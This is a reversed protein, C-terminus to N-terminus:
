FQLTPLIKKLQIGREWLKPNKKAIVRDWLHTYEHIPHEPSIKTEDLYINGESDVFGYIEGQPTQFKALESTRQNSRSGGFNQGRVPEGSSAEQALGDNNRNTKRNSLLNDSNFLSGQESEYQTLVSSFVRDKEKYGNEVINIQEANLKDLNYWDVVEFGFTTLKKNGKYFKLSTNFRFIRKKDKSFYWIGNTRDTNKSLSEIFDQIKKKDKKLHSIM